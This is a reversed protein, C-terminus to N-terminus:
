DIVLELGRARAMSEGLDIAHQESRVTHVTTGEIPEADEDGLFVHWCQVEDDLRRDFDVDAAVYVAAATAAM